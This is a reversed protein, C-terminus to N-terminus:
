QGKTPTPLVLEFDVTGFRKIEGSADTWDRIFMKNKSKNANLVDLFVRIASEVNGRPAGKGWWFECVAKGNPKTLKKLEKRIQMINLHNKSDYWIRFVAFLIPPRWFKNNKSFDGFVDKFDLLFARMMNYALYGESNLETKGTNWGRLINVFASASGAYAGRYPIDDRTLFPHFVHHLALATGQTKHSVKIPFNGETEADNIKAWVNLVAKHQQLFDSTTQGANNACKDYEAREEDETLDHWVHLDLEVIGEPHRAFYQELASHRHNCDIMRLKSGKHNVTWSGSFNDNNELVGTLMNVRGTRRDRANQTRVLVSPHLLPATKDYTKQGNLGVNNRVSDYKLPIVQGNIQRTPM